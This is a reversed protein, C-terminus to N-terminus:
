VLQQVYEIFADEWSQMRITKPHPARITINPLSPHTLISFHTPPLGDINEFVLGEYMNLLRDDYKQNTFLICIDPELIEIEKRLISDFKVIEELVAGVPAGVNQDFRNLNSWAISYPRVGLACEVKRIVNWFPTSKYNSGFNFGEYSNLQAKISLSQDWGYTEQGICMLKLPENIYEKVKILLPGQLNENTFKLSFDSLDTIYTSYIKELNENIGM